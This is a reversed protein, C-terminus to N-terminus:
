KYSKVGVGAPALGRLDKASVHPTQRLGFKRRRNKELHLTKKSICTEDCNEEEGSFRTINELELLILIPAPRRPTGRTAPPRASGISDCRENHECRGSSPRPRIKVPGPIVMAAAPRAPARPGGRRVSRRLTPRLPPAADTPPDAPTTCPRTACKSAKPARTRGRNPGVLTRHAARAASRDRRAGWASARPSPPAARSRRGLCARSGFLTVLSWDLSKLSYVLRSPLPACSRSFRPLASQVSMTNLFRVEVELTAALSTAIVTVVMMLYVRHPQFLPISMRPLDKAWPLDDLLDTSNCRHRHESFFITCKGPKIKRRIMFPNLRPSSTSVSVSMMVDDAPTRAISDSPAPRQTSGFPRVPLITTRAKTGTYELHYEGSISCLAKVKALALSSRPTLRGRRDAGAGGAATRFAENDNNNGTIVRSPRVLLRRNRSLRARRDRAARSWPAAARCRALSTSTAHSTLRGSSLEHM